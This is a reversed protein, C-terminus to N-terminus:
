IVPPLSTSVTGRMRDPCRVARSSRALQGRGGNYAHSCCCPLIASSSINRTKLQPMPMIAITASCCASAAARSSCAAPSVTHRMPLTWVRAASSACVVTAHFLDDNQNRTAAAVHLRQECCSQGDRDSRYDTVLGRRRSERSRLAVAHRCADDRMAGIRVGSREICRKCFFNIFKFGLQDHEGSEHADEGVIEDNAVASPKDINM